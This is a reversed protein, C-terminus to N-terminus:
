MKIEKYGLYGIKKVIGWKNKKTKSGLQQGFKSTMWGLKKLM